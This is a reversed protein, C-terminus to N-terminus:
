QEVGLAMVRGKRQLIEEHGEHGEHNIGTKLRGM